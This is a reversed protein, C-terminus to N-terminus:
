IEQIIIGTDSIYSDPESSQKLIHNEKKLVHRPDKPHFGSMKYLTTSPSTFVSKTYHNIM